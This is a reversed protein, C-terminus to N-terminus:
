LKAMAAEIERLTEPSLGTKAEGKELADRMKQRQEAVNDRYIQLELEIKLLKTRESRQELIARLVELYDKLNQVNKKMASVDFSELLENMQHAALTENLTNADTRDKEELERAWKLAVRSRDQIENEINM